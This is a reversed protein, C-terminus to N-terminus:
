LGKGPKTAAFRLRVYDAFWNGNEDCLSPCLAAVVEDLVEDRREGFQDFFPARMVELWAAMGNPLPTPRAFTMIREVEFGAAELLAAYHPATPFFWPSALEPDGGRANAVARMASAIAAVNGFGGMEGVFRGGPKLGQWVGNIVREPELMWHLAANSFVADFESEFALSHADCLQADLGRARAAELFEPSADVGTVSAGCDAIKSTLSGDGCGLDLIREGSAPTLWTLVDEGYVPVFGTDRQYTASEWRQGSRDSGGKM